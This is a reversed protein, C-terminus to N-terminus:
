DPMVGIQRLMALEDFSEWEEAIKTGEFRMILQGTINIKKGTAEIDELPGDHTGTLSWRTSILDGEVVREEVTMHLDPFAAFYGEIMERLQDIGRLELGGPGHYAYDETCLQSLLALNRGNVVENFARDHTILMGETVSMPQPTAM